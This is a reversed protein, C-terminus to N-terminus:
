RCCNGGGGFSDYSYFKYGTKTEIFSFRVTLPVDSKNDKASLKIIYIESVPVSNDVIVLQKLLDDSYYEKETDSSIYELQTEDLLKKSLTSDFISLACKSIFEEVNLSKDCAEISDFSITKLKTFNKTRIIQTFETWVSRVKGDPISSSTEIKKDKIEFDNPKSDPKDKSAPSNCSLVAITLIFAIIINHRM